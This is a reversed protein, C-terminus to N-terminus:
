TPSISSPSIAAARIPSSLRTPAPTSLLGSRPLMAAVGGSLADHRHALRRLWGPPASVCSMAARAEGEALRAGGQLHADRGRDRGRRHIARASQRRSLRSLLPEEMRRAVRRRRDGRVTLTASLNGVPLVNIDAREIIYRLSMAAGDYQVLREDLSGGRKYFLRRVAKEPVNGGEAEGREIEPRWSVDAFDGVVAWVKDPPAAIEITEVVKQPTAGHAAAVSPALAAICFALAALVFFRRPPRAGGPPAGGPLRHSTM